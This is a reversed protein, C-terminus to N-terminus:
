RFEGEAVLILLISICIGLVADYMGVLSLCVMTAFFAAWFRLPRGFPRETM